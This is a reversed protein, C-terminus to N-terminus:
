KSAGSNAAEVQAQLDDVKRQMDAIEQQKAAIQEKEDDLAQAGTKDVYNPNSSYTQEDLAYKRQAIDLDAKLSELQAKAQKLDAQIAAKQEATAPGDTRPSSAPPTSSAPEGEPQGAQGVVSINGNTTPINDNDWVKAAQPPNKKQAQARRAVDALSEQENSSSGQQPRAATALPSVVLVALGLTAWRM